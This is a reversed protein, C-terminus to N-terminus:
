VEGWEDPKPSQFFGAVERYEDYVLEPAGADPLPASDQSSYTRSHADGDDVVSLHGLQRGLPSTPLLIFARWASSDCSGIRVPDSRSFYM